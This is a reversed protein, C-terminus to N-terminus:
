WIFLILRYKTKQCYEKYGPLNNILYKEENIIRLVLWASIGVLFPILAWYSGLAIPTFLIFILGGSYMPHRVIKYPGTDIVKQDKSTEIISSAFRNEKMTVIIVLYGLLVFINALIVIFIPINSWHFRYDFGPILFGILFIFVFLIQLPKQEKEKEKRGSRQKVFELDNKLYYLITFLLPIFITIYYIWVQWFKLSGAPLFLLLGSFILFMLVRITIKIALKVRSNIVTKNDSEMEKEKKIRLLHITPRNITYLEHLIKPLRSKVKRVLLYAYEV